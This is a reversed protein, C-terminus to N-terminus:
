KQTTSLSNLIECEASDTAKQIEFAFYMPIGKKADNTYAASYLAISKNGTSYTNELQVSYNNMLEDVSMSENINEAINEMAPGILSTECSVAEQGSWAPQAILMLSFLVLINSVTKM